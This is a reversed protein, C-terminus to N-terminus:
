ARRAGRRGRVPDALDRKGRLPRRLCRREGHGPRHLRRVVDHALLARPGVRDEPCTWHWARLKRAAADHQRVGTRGGCDAAGAGRRVDPRHSRRARQWGDQVTSWFPDFLSTPQDAPGQKAFVLVLVIAVASTTVVNRVVQGQVVLGSRNWFQQRRSLELSVLLLLGFFLLFYLHYNLTAYSYSLHILLMAGAIIVALGGRGKAFILYATGYGLGLSLVAIILAFMVNDRSNGGAFATQIWTVIHWSLENLRGDWTDATMRNGFALVIAEIAIVFALAHLARRRLGSKVGVIAVAMGFWALPVLLDLNDSWEAAEVSHVVCWIVAALLFITLWGERPSYRGSPTM